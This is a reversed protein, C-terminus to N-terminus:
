PVPRVVRPKAIIGRLGQATPPPLAPNPHGGPHSPPQPGPAARGDGRPLALGPPRQKTRTADPWHSEQLARDRPTAAALVADPLDGRHNPPENGAVADQRAQC